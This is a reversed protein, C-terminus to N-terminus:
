REYYMTSAFNHKGHLRLDKNKEGIYKMYETYIIAPHVFGDHELQEHIRNVTTIDSLTFIINASPDSFASILQADFITPVHVIVKDETDLVTQLDRAIEYYNTDKKTNYSLILYTSGNIIQFLIYFLAFTKTLLNPNQSLLKITASALLITVFPIAIRVYFFWMGLPSGTLAFRIPGQILILVICLFLLFISRSNRRNFFTNRILSSLLAMPILILLFKFRIKLISQSYGVIELLNYRFRNIINIISDDGFAIQEGLTIQNLFYDNFVKYNNMFEKGNWLLYWCSTFIITTLGSFIMSFWTKRQRVFTIAFVLHAILVLASLFHCFIAIISSIGYFLSLIVLERNNILLSKSQDETMVIKLYFYTSTICFAIAMSYSRLELAMELMVPHFLTLLCAIWGTKSDFLLTSTRLIMFLSLWFGTLSVLCLLIPRKNGFIKVMYHISINYLMMNGNDAIGSAHYANAMNNDAWFKNNTFENQKLLSDSFPVQGMSELLTFFEDGFFRKKSTVLVISVLIIPIIILVVPNQKNMLMPVGSEYLEM